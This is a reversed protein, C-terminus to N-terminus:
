RATADTGLTPRQIVSASSCTVGNSSTTSAWHPNQHVLVDWFDGNVFEPRHSVVNEVNAAGLPRPHEVVHKPWKSLGLLPHEDRRVFAKGLVAVLLMEADQYHSHALGVFLSNVRPNHRRKALEGFVMPGTQEQDHAIRNLTHMSCSDSALTAMECAIM